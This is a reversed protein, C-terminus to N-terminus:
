KYIAYLCSLNEYFSRVNEICLSQARKVNLGQALRLSLERQWREFWRLSSPSPIGNTFLIDKGQTIIVVKLKFQLISLPFGLDQMAIIYEVLQQEEVQTLVLTAGRKCSLVIGVLHARFSTKPINSGMSLTVMSM